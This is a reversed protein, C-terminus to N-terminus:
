NNKELYIIIKVQDGDNLGLKERLFYPSIIELTTSYHSRTPLVIAGLLNNIEAEFCQVGGFTRKDDSFEAIHIGPHHKVLRIKNKEVPQIEVNLTGPYPIFGLTRQFQDIYGKQVTYYRGEGMGSIVRGFVTITTAQEFIQQYAFYEGRLIELGQDNIQILQKKIGMERSIM